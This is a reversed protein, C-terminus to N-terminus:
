VSTVADFRTRISRRPFMTPCESQGTFGAPKVTCAAIWSPMAPACQPICVCVVAPMATAQECAPSDILL